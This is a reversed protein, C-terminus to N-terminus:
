DIMLSVESVFPNLLAQYGRAMGRVGRERPGFRSFATVSRLLSTFSIALTISLCSWCILLRLLAASLNLRSSSTMVMLYSTFNQHFFM